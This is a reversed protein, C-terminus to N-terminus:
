ELKIFKKIDIDTPSSNNIVKLYYVGVPLTSIDLQITNYNDSITNKSFVVQGQQNIIFIADIKTPQDLQEYIIYDKSPNPYIKSNPVAYIVPDITEPNNSIISPSFSYPISNLILYQGSVTPKTIISNSISCTYTGSLAATYSSDGLITATLVGNRYWKYTNNSVNEGAKVYLTNGNKYTPITGQSMYQLNNIVPTHNLLPQIGDFNLKNNQIYLINLNSTNAFNTTISSFQNYALYAQNLYPLNLSNGITGSLNNYQLNIFNLLPLNWTTPISGSLQNSNLSLRKLNPLNFIPINGTFNNFNLQLEELNPMNFNPISGLIQNNNAYLIKLKPLNIQPIGSLQNNNVFLKELSILKDFLPISGTFLNNHLILTQLNPMFSFNPITGTLKNAQLGLSTLNPIHLDPLSGSFQNFSLDLTQLSPFYNIDILGSLKNLSLDLHILNPQNFFQIGGIFQNNRLNVVSLSPSNMTPIIYGIKNNALNLVSLKPFVLPLVKGQLNNNNLVISAIDCGDATLKIGYWTNLNGNTFWNTKNIWSSGITQDYFSALQWYDDHLCTPINLTSPNPVGNYINYSRLIFNPINSNTVECSYNGVASPIYTSDGIITAVISGNKSWKYTNNAINGGAKIYLTNTAIYVPILNTNSYFLSPIAPTRQILAEVGDFNLNTRGIDCYTMNPLNSFNPVPGELANLYLYLNKLYPINSFNPIKGSLQNYKLSMIELLPM